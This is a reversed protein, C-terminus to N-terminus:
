RIIILWFDLDFYNFLNTIVFIITIFITFTHLNLKIPVLYFLYNFITTFFYNKFCNFDLNVNKGKSTFYEILLNQILSNM